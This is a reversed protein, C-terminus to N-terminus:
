HNCRYYCSGIFCDVVSNQHYQIKAFGAGNFTLVAIIKSLVALIRMLSNCLEAFSVITADTIGAADADYIGQAHVANNVCM